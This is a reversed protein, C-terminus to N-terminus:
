EVALGAFLNIGHARPEDVWWFTDGNALRVAYDARARLRGSGDPLWLGLRYWGAPLDAPLQLTTSVTHTLPTYEPDGPAYPQWDRPSVSVPFEWVRNDPGVLCFVVERPNHLTAFGRNVLDISVPLAQGRAARTPYTASTLELRYGLHDRLYEFVTREVPAGFIDRFYEPSHPLKAATVREPDLPESLWRDVTYPAGERESYSHSLSLTTYHHLRLTTLAELGDVPGAQDAYFLEGDNFLWPSELTVQDFEPNGPQGQLPAEPWTGGHTPGAMFGDNKYGIRASATNQYAGAATLLGTWGAPQNEMVWRKYKPVRVHIHREPPLVELLRTVLRSLFPHNTHHGNPSSHWEGWAGVFGAQLVGIVDVNAALLPALQDVHHMLWEENAEIVAGDAVTMHKQYAFRLVAKYGHARLLDFGAQLRALGEASIPQDIWQDLYYYWQVMTLGWGRYHEIETLWGEPTAEGVGVIHRLPAGNLGWGLMVENRLGREPNALGDRGAPDTPRLGRYARTTLEPAAPEAPQGLTLGCLALTVLSLM